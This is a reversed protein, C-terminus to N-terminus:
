TSLHATDLQGALLCGAVRGMERWRSTRLTQPAVGGEHESGQATVGLRQGLSKTGLLSDKEFESLFPFEALLGTM